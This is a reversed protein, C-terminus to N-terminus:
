EDYQTIRSHGVLAWLGGCEGLAQGFSATM